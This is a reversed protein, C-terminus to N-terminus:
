CIKSCIGVVDSTTLEVQLVGVRNAGIKLIVTFILQVHIYFFITSLMTYPPLLCSPTQILQKTVNGHNKFLLM